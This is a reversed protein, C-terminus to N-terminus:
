ITSRYSSVTSPKRELSELWRDAWDVFRLEAGMQGSDRRDGQADRTRSTFVEDYAPSWGPVTAAEVWRANCTCRVDSAGRPPWLRQTACIALHRTPAATM